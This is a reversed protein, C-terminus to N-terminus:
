TSKKFNENANPNSSNQPIYDRMIRLITNILLHFICPIIMRNQTKYRTSSNKQFDPKRPLARVTQPKIISFSAFTFKAKSMGLELSRSTIFQSSKSTREAKLSNLLVQESIGSFWKNITIFWQNEYANINRFFYKFLKDVSFFALICFPQVCGIRFKATM